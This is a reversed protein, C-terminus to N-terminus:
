HAPGQAHSLSSANQVGQQPGGEWHDGGGRSRGTSDIGMGQGGARAGLQQRQPPRESGPGLVLVGSTKYYAM